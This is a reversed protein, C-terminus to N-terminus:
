EVEPKGAVACYGKTHEADIWKWHAMCKSGICCAPERPQMRSGGTLLPICIKALAEQENVIM